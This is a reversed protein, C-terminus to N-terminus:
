NIWKVEFDCTSYDDDLKIYTFKTMENAWNFMFKQKKENEAFNKLKEFDEEYNMEHEPILKILKIIRVVQNDEFEDEFPDSLQNEKVGTLAFNLKVPLRDKSQRTLGSLPSTLIGGNNKTYKDISFDKAAQSFSITGETIKTKISDAFIRTELMEQNTPKPKILIHRADIEEGRRKELKIIHYGFETEVPDSIEGEKLTFAVEEFEKVFKGRKINEYLGGKSSSGPDQSYIFAKSSFDAGNEVDQKIELLKDVIKKRNQKSIIPKFVIHALELEEKVKPLEFQNRDFFRKVENPTAKIEQTLKAQMRQGYMQDKLQIELENKLEFVSNVGFIDMLQAEPVKNRFDALQAEARASIQDNEISILTDQKAENILLMQLMLNNVFNCDDDIEGQTKAIAIQNELGSKTIIEDGVVIAVADIKQAEVLFLFPSLLLCFLLAVSYIRFIM